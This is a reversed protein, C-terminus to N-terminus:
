RELYEKYFSLEPLHILEPKASCIEVFQKLLKIQAESVGSMNFEKIQFFPFFPAMVICGASIGPDRHPPM